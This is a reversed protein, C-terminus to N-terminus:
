QEVTLKDKKNWKLHNRFYIVWLALNQVLFGYHGSCLIWVLWLAQLFLGLAWAWRKLSGAQFAMYAGAISLVWPFYLTVFQQISM